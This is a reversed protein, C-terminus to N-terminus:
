EHVIFRSSTFIAVRHQQDVERPQRQPTYLFLINLVTQQVNVLEALMHKNKQSLFKSPSSFTSRDQSM